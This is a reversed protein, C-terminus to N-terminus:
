YIVQIMARPWCFEEEIRELLGTIIYCLKVLCLVM